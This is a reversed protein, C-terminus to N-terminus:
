DVLWNLWVAVKWNLHYPLSHYFFIGLTCASTHLNKCKFAAHAVCQCSYVCVCVCVCVCECVCICVKM